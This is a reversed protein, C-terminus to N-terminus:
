RAREAPILFSGHFAFYIDYTDNAIDEVEYTFSSNVPFLIPIPLIYPLQANGFIATDIVKDVPTGSGNIFSPSFVTGVPTQTTTEMKFLFRKAAIANSKICERTMAKLLYDAQVGPITLTGRYTALGAAVTVKFPLVRAVELYEKGNYNLIGYM